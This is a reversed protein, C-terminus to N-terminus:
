VNTEMAAVSNDPLFVYNLVNRHLPADRLPRLAGGAFVYPEYGLEGLLAVTRNALITERVGRGELIEVVLNPRSHRLLGRAGDIVEWEHGEVDIKMFGVNSLDEDDLRVTRIIFDIGQRGPRHSDGLHGVDYQPRGRENYHIYFRQEGSINSVGRQRVETNRLKAQEIFLAMPPAPEYAITRTALRSLFFSYTGRNAGIDIAIRDRPVIYPLLRLEGEHAAEGRLRTRHARLWIYYRPNILRYTLKMHGQPPHM